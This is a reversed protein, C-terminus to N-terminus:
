QFTPSPTLIEFKQKSKVYSMPNLLLVFPRTEGLVSFFNLASRLSLRSLKETPMIKQVMQFSVANGYSKICHPM